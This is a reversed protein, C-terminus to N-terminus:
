RAALGRAPSGLSRSLFAAVDGLFAGDVEALPDYYDAVSWNRSVAFLHNLEPYVHYTVAKNGAATLADRVLEADKVAIQV